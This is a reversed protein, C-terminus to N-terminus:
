GGEPPDAPAEVLWPRENFIDTIWRWFRGPPPQEQVAVLLEEMARTLEVTLGAVNERDAPRGATALAPGFRLTIRGGFRLWRTGIVALPVLPVGARLALFAPGDELPVIAGERDSLRGEGAVALVHGRELVSLARKTTKLLERKSPKFPVGIRGWTILRNRWGARMDIEKPGFVYVWRRDPWFAIVLLPDLWNPHSFNLLFSGERPLVAANEVRVRFFCSILLRLGFRIFNYRLPGPPDPVFADM